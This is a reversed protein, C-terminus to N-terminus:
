HAPAPQPASQPASGPKSFNVKPVERSGESATFYAENPKFGAWAAFINHPFQQVYTNYDQLTDNYRKREVAIRNETGALEDQLRLFNENSKLQPYNEVIALLRGLAGDLQGNAAIKEQPTGASLLASRAKAIDGFVTQEQQAYGKVTEVLNPILDARRQLVIDVQSWAAKVAENKTVLTNRVGVYQGFVILLLVVIVVVVAVLGKM